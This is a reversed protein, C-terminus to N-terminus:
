DVKSRTIRPRPKLRGWIRKNSFSNTLLKSFESKIKSIKSRIIREKKLRRTWIFASIGIYGLFQIPTRLMFYNRINEIDLELADWFIKGVAGYPATLFTLLKTWLIIFVINIALLSLKNQPRLFFKM